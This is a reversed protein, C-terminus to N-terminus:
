MESECNPGNAAAAAPALAKPKLVLQVYGTVDDCSKKKTQNKKM